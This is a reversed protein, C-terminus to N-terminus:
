AAKFCLGGESDVHVFDSSQADSDFECSAAFSLAVALASRSSGCPLVHEMLVVLGLVSMLSYTRNPWSFFNHVVYLDSPQLFCDM